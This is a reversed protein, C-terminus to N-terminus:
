EGSKRGPGFHHDLGLEGDGTQSTAYPGAEGADDVACARYAVTGWESSVADTQSLSSTDAFQTWAGGDVQREYRYSEVTGDPDTAATLTIAASGGGVIGTVEISGPHRPPSTPRSPAM